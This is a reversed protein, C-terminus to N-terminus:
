NRASDFTISKPGLSPQLCRSIVSQKQLLRRPWNSRHFISLVLQKQRRLLSATRQQEGGEIVARWFRCVLRVCRFFHHRSSPRRKGHSLLCLTTEGSSHWLPSTRRDNSLILSNESKQACFVRVERVAAMAPLSMTKMCRVVGSGGLIYARGQKLKSANFNYYAM